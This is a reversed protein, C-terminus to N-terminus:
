RKWPWLVLLILSSVRTLPRKHSLGMMETVTMESSATSFAMKKSLFGRDNPRLSM